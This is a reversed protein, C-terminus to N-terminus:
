ESAQSFKPTVVKVEPALQGGGGVHRMEGSAAVGGGGGSGQFQPPIQQQQQHVVAGVATYYVQRSVASDYAVHAYGGGTVAVGPGSPRAVGMPVMPPPPQHHQPVVNYVPQERYVDPGHGPAGTRQMYYGQGTQGTVQRMVQPAHYVTEPAPGTILYVPQGMQGPATTVAVAAQFGGGAAQEDPWYGPPATVQPPMTVPLNVPSVKEPLKQMYYDGGAAAYGGVLNEDSTKEILGLRNSMSELKCEKCSPVKVPPPLPPAGKDSGFSFDVNNAPTKTAEVVQSPVSNLAEVFRERDSKDGDSGFTAHSPNVPFIFLRMRAPKASARYLRDYEHMMHELDDDNTVSILADLDEGPLQYKFAVDTDGCLASLKSTIAPLKLNRDFALIKTEGGIYTLQNDHPRPHIKGGYSCMFKAIYNQPQQSQEEWPTPNDFDIERSRPSSEGSDPYSNFSYNNEM